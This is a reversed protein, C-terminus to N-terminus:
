DAQVYERRARSGFSTLIDYPITNIRSSLEVATIADDGQSGLIVVEDGESVGEVETVDIMTLDMCVRGAVPVRSGRVLMESNNSFLRNYGDAYGVPVVAIRSQRKTIFTRGYSVPTGPPLNRVVLIRTRVKMLPRLGRDDNFPSYGYLILGPRVADFFAEELSIVAASNAIHAMVPRGLRESVEARVKRFMGIQLDAYTKDTLDAESFHSMLGEVEIGGMGAIKEMDSGASEPRFGIRGMGTDVKAHVAMRSGRRLAEKSFAAATKLDHIVPVLDYRFYDDIDSTDFLVLIRCKIGAERLTRAEGTFAVALCSVGATLLKRSIEVSGHGYADAKVVAIVPVKRVIKRIIELNHRLASLDIEAAPGRNVKIKKKKDGPRM